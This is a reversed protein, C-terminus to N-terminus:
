CPPPLGWTPSTVRTPPTVRRRSDVASNICNFRYINLVLFNTEAKILSFLEKSVNVYNLCRFRASVWVQFLCTARGYSWRKGRFFSHFLCTESRLKAANECSIWMIVIAFIRSEQFPFRVFVHWFTNQNRQLRLSPFMFFRLTDAWPFLRNGSHKRASDGTEAM